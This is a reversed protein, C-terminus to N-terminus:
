PADGGGSRLRYEKPTMQYCQRFSRSFSNATTYGVLGAIEQIRLTSKELLRAAEKMRARLLYDSFKEGTQQRFYTSLYYPNMKVSEAALELTADEYHAHIYAKVRRIIENSNEGPNQEPMKAPVDSAHQANKESRMDLERRIQSFVETIQAYKIPKVLYHRVSMKMVQRAYEFNRYGSIVVVETDQGRNRMSEILEIGSMGQMRVDTVVVDIDHERLFEDAAQASAFDAAVYFGIEKWPFYTCFGKRIEKEDDIVVMSYM